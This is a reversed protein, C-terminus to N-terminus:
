FNEDMEFDYLLTIRNYKRPRLKSIKAQKSQDYLIRRPDPYVTIYMKSNDPILIAEGSLVPISEDKIDDSDLYYVEPDGIHLLIRFPHKKNPKYRCGGKRCYNGISIEKIVLRDFLDNENFNLLFSNEKIQEPTLKKFQRTKETYEGPFLTNRLQTVKSVFEKGEESELNIFRISM